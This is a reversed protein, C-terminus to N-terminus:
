PDRRQLKVATAVADELRVVLGTRGVHFVHEVVALERLRRLLQEEAMQAAAVRLQELRARQLLDAEVSPRLRPRANTRDIATANPRTQGYRHPKGRAAHTGM